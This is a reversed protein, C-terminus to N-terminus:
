DGGQQLAEVATQENGHGTIVVVFTKPANFLIERTLELGDMHPMRIDTLVIEPKVARFEAIGKEGDEAEYIDVDMSRLFRRMSVRIPKEDDVILLRIKEM